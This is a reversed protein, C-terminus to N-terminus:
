QNWEVASAVLLAELDDLRIGTVEALATQLQRALVATDPDLTLPQDPVLDLHRPHETMALM